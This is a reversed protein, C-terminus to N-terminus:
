HTRKGKRAVFEEFEHVPVPRSYLYGQLYDCRHVTQLFYRQAQTEVGEAVVKLKLSHALSITAACIAAADGRSEIGMVFSRDIKLEDLPLQSLYSLSSYGTGFDDLSFGVGSNKLLGMKEIVEDIQAVLMSETLELRLKQPKAGTRELISQVLPVFNSQHFQRASVNVSVTLHAMEPRDAWRALQTCATELVWAGLPVILGTDEALPIFDAPSIMGRQPHQWRLLVEAAIVVGDGMIQPQFHLTFQQEKLAVRMDNELAARAM